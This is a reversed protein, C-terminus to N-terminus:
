GNGMLFHRKVSELALACSRDPSVPIAQDVQKATQRDFLFHSRITSGPAKRAGLKTILKQTPDSLGQVGSKYKSRWRYLADPKDKSLVFCRVGRSTFEDLHQTFSAYQRNCGPTNAKPVLFVVIPGDACLKQLSTSENADNLVTVVRYDTSDQSKANNLAEGKRKTTQVAVAATSASSSATSRSQSRRSATM